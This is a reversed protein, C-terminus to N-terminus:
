RNSCFHPPGSLNCAVTGGLTATDGFHPPEFPLMQNQAALAQEIEILPTGARATIVLETPEYSTIGRHPSVDLLEGVPERGYFDKSGGARIRLPQSTEAAETVRQQLETSIDRDTM